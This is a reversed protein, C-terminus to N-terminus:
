GHRTSLIAKKFEEVIGVRDVLFIFLNNLLVLRYFVYKLSLFMFTLLFFGLFVVGKTLGLCLKM